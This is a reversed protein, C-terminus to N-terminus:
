DFWGPKAIKDLLDRVFLSKVQSTARRVVDKKSKEKNEYPEMQLQFNGVPKVPNGASLERSLLRKQVDRKAFDEKSVVKHEAALKIAHAIAEDLRNLASEVAAPPLRDALEARYADRREGSQLALLQNYLDEDIYDPLAAGHMGIARRAAFHLEGTQFKSTDIVLTGDPREQVGPDNVLRQRVQARLAKPYKSVAYECAERFNLTAKDDLVYTRLGTRYAPFCLDNDIGKVTVTLDSKVDILYNGAHRDGQGTVLDLWELRNTGRLLGGIVKAHMDDPLASVTEASLSGGPPEANKGFETAQLGPAKEMFLGYDGGHMGVSCKPVADGLGLFNAATQTALNLQAVQQGPAYDRSLTLTEMGQRGLAEPKFVRQTGDTYTVLKVTSAQGSGLIKSKALRSDDLMPDVDADSMGHVRAEVLTPFSLTGEALARASTTSLFEEPSMKRGVTKVMQFFHDIQTRLTRPKPHFFADIEKWAEEKVQKGFALKLKAIDYKIDNIDIQAYRKALDLIEQRKEQSQPAEIYEGAARAIAHRLQVAKFLTAANGMVTGMHEPAFIPFGPKVGLTHEAFHRLMAGGVNKRADLLKKEAFDALGALRSLFDRDPIVRGGDPTPFGEAAARAITKRAEQMEVAYATFEACSLSANPRTAFSELRDALPQLTAKMKEIAETNGHMSLAQRPLLTVLRADLRKAVAPDNANSLADALEMALTTIETQRRDCQLALDLVADFADGAAEPRNALAHLREGLAAQADIADRIAKADPDKSWQFVGNDDATFAAAIQRGTYRAIAKMTRQAKEAAAALAKREAKGLGPLQTAEKISKADVSRTSLKAAELLMVDLKQALSRATPPNAPANAPQGQPANGPVNAPPNAHNDAGGIQPPNVAPIHNGVPAFGSHGSM